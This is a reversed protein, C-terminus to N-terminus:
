YGRMEKLQKRAKAVDRKNMTYAMYHAGSQSTKRIKKIGQIGFTLIMKSVVSSLHGIGLETIAELQSIERGEKFAM